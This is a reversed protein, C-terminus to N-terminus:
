SFKAIFWGPGSPFSAEIIKWRERNGNGKTDLLFGMKTHTIIAYQEWNLALLKSLCIELM